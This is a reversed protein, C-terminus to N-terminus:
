KKTVDGSRFASWVVDFVRDGSLANTRKWDGSMKRFTAVAGFRRNNDYTFLVL